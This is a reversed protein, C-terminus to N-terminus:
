KIEPSVIFRFSEVCGIEGKMVIQALRAADEPFSKAWRAYSRERLWKAQPPEYGWDLGRWCRRPPTHYRVFGTTM